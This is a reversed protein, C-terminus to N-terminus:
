FDKDLTTSPSARHFWLLRNALPSHWTSIGVETAAPPLHPRLGSRTSVVSGSLAREENM